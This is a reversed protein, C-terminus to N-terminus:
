GSNRMYLRRLADNLAEGGEIIELDISLVLIRCGDGPLTLGKLKVADKETTVIYRINEKKCIKRIDIIDTVRYVFHDPFIGEHGVLAGLREVTYKFYSPDCIASLICVKRGKIFDSKKVSRDELDIIERVRHSTKIVPKDPVIRRIEEEITNLSRANDVKTLAILDARKLNAIPERLIGRPFLHRNGFPDTTDILAINLDRELRIHQFGDDMILTDAGQKRAEKANRIRDRGVFIKTGLRGLREELLKWEDEGYGRILVAPRRKNEALLKSLMIVFPTKGTGGLTINGISVVGADAKYTKLMKSSYLFLNAKVILNYCHSVLLLLYKIVKSIPDNKRDRMLDTIYQKASYM